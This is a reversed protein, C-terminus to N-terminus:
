LDLATGDIAPGCDEPLAAVVLGFAEEPTGVVGLAGVGLPGRVRFRGDGLPYVQGGVHAAPLRTCRRAAVIDAANRSREGDTMPSM